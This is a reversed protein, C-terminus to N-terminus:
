GVEPQPESMRDFPFSTRISEFIKNELPYLARLAKMAEHLRREKVMHDIDILEHRIHYDDFTMLLQDFQEQFIKSAEGVDNPSMLQLQITFYLRRLPTTAEDAQLIHSELLFQVDNLFEFSTKRDFKLVAGNIYIRENPKMSVKFTSM